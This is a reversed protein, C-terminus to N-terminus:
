GQACLPGARRAAPAAPLTTPERAWPLRDREGQGALRSRTDGPHSTGDSPKKYGCGRAQPRVATDPGPPVAGAQKSGENDCVHGLREATRVPRYLLM